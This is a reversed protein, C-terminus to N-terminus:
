VESITDCKAIYRKAKGNGNHMLSGNGNGLQQGPKVEIFEDFKEEGKRLYGNNNTSRTGSTARFCKGIACCVLCTIVLVVVCGVAIIVISTGSSTFKLLAPKEPKL